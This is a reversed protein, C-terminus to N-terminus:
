CKKLLCPLFDEPMNQYCIPRQFRKISENGVSTSRIDTSAPFPGGHNMAGCVEVGTSMQNYILRGVKNALKHSLFMVHERDSQNAHISATLNGKMNDVVRIVDKFSECLVIVACPGFVETRLEQSNLFTKVNTEFLAPACFHEFKARQGHAICMVGDLQKFNDVSRQYDKAIDPTLMVGAQKVKIKESCMNSFRTYSDNDKEDKLVVWLGPNTCFQGQGLTVSEVFLQALQEPNESLKSPLLFQPNTSGLEGYFPIPDERDYVQRQLIMGVRESGTFGIAKVKPHKVIKTSLQYDDGQILSFVGKPLECEEIAKLVASAVLESTGPHSTHAKMIVCCGAALASATDGGCTSYALPFNSAAFVGVVGLPIYGLRIDPKPLPKRNADAAEFVPLYEQSEIQQAYLTLQHLTRSRETVIRDKTLGTEQNCVDILQEGLDLINDAIKRLFEARQNASLLSYVAFASNAEEIAKEILQETANYYTQSLPTNLAPNIANFGLESGKEWHGAILSKGTLQM